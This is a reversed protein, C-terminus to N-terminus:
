YYCELKTARKDVLCGSLDPHEKPSCASQLPNVVIYLQQKYTSIETNDVVFILCLQAANEYHAGKRDIWQVMVWDRWPRGHFHTYCRLCNHEKTSSDVLDCKMHCFIINGGEEIMKGHAARVWKNEEEGNKIAHVVGEFRNSNSLCHTCSVGNETSVSFSPSGLIIDGFQRSDLSENDSSLHDSKASNCHLDSLRKQNMSAEYLREEYNRQLLEKRYSSHRRTTRSTYAKVNPKLASELYVGSFNMPTGHKEIHSPFHLLGHFKPIRLGVKSVIERQIGVVERYNSLYCQIIKKIDETEHKPIDERNLCESLCLSFWLLKIFKKESIEGFKSSTKSKIMNPLAVMTLLLLGSYEQGNLRSLTTIGQTFKMKPMAKDSQRTAATSAVFARREFEATSFRINLETNNRSSKPGGKLSQSNSKGPRNEIRGSKKGKCRAKFWTLLEKSPLRFEFISLLLYKFLGLYVLHLDEFPCAGHIGNGSVGFPFNWFFLDLAHQSIKKCAEENKKYSGQNNEIRQIVNQVHPKVDSVKTFCCKYYPDDGERSPVNCDRVMRSILACSASYHGTLKDAWKTDGIIFLLDFHLTVIGKGYVFMSTGNSNRTLELFPRLLVDLSRQYFNNEIM